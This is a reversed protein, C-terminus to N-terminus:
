PTVIPFWFEFSDLNGILAQLPTPDGTVQITGAAM